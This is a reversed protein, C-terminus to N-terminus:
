RVSDSNLLPQKIILSSRVEPKVKIDDIADAWSLLLVFAEDHKVPKNQMNDDFVKRYLPLDKAYPPADEIAPTSLETANQFIANSVLENRPETATEVHLRPVPPVTGGSSIGNSGMLSYLDLRFTANARGDNVTPM